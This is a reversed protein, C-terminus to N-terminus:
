CLCEEYISVTEKALTQSDFQSARKLAKQSMEEYYSADELLQITHSVYADICDESLIGGENDAIVDKVGMENICVAPTGVSLSELVCLGQTETKSPFLLLKSLKLGALVREKSIYGTFIVADQFNAEYVKEALLLREPGDGIILLKANPFDNHIKQFADILFYINKEVGLRGVFSLILDESSLSFNRFFYNQESESVDHQEVGTPIVSIPSEVGYELLGQKMDESPVIIANSRNCFRRSEKTAWKKMWKEPLIPVYHVYELFFTHYTHVLPIDHKKALYQALYGMTFPTQAHIVDFNISKFEKLKKSYPLVLRYEKQFPYTMSPFRWVKDSSKSAGKMKPCMIYVDHGLEEFAKKFTLTSTVVGNIQPLYTDTFIAIKM